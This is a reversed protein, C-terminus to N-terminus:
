GPEREIDVQIVSPDVGVAFALGVTAAHVVNAQLDSDAKVTVRLRLRAGDLQAAVSRVGRGLRQEFALLGASLKPQSITPRPATTPNAAAPPPPPTPQPRPPPPVNLGGCRPCPLQGWKRVGRCLDCPPRIGCRILAEDVDYTTTGGEAWVWNWGYSSVALNRIDVLVQAMLRPNHGTTQALREYFGPWTPVPGGILQNTLKHAL